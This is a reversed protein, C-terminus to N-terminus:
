CVYYQANTMRGVNNRIALTVFLLAFIKLTRITFSFDDADEMDSETSAPLPLHRPFAHMTFFCTTKRAFLPSLPPFILSYVPFRNAATDSTLVNGPPPPISHVNKQGGENISSNGNEHM